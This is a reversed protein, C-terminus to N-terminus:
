GDIESYTSSVVLWFVLALFSRPALIYGESILHILYFFLLSSLICAEDKNKKHLAKKFSVISIILFPIFGLLGTMSAVALWSSGPEIQGNLVNVKDINPNVTCFGIGFIPSSQFEQIRANFKQERSFVVSGGLEVNNQNKEKLFLTLSSWVPFTLALTFVIFLAILGGKVKNKRYNIYFAVICALICSLIGNRSASLLCAGFCFFTIIVFLIKEWKNCSALSKSLMFATSLGAFHGLVISHNMLGSFQGAEIELYGEGRDFLNVDFFYAFFSGVSLFVCSIMIFELLKRRVQALNPSSLIPSAILLLVFYGGLRNWANFYEPTDNVMLSFLCALCFLILWPQGVHIGSGRKIVLVFAIAMLFVYYLNSYHIFGAISVTTIAASLLVIFFDDKRRYTITM